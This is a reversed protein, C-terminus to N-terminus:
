SSPEPAWSSAPHQLSFASPSLFRLHFCFLGVCCLPDFCQSKSATPESSREMAGLALHQQLRARLQWLAPKQSRWCHFGICAAPTACASWGVPKM